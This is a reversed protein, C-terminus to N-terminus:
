RSRRGVVQTGHVEEATFPQPDFPSKSKTSKRQLLITNCEKINHPKVNAKADKYMKQKAKAERDQQRAQQIDAREEM